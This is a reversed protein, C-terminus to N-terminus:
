KKTCPDVKWLRLRRVLDQRDSVVVRPSKLFYREIWEGAKRGADLLHARIDEYEDDCINLRQKVTEETWTDSYNQQKYPKINPLAHSQLDLFRELSRVLGNSLTENKGNMQGIETLFLTTQSFNFIKITHHDLLAMEEETNMPTFGIRSLFHHFNSHGSCGPSRVKICHGEPGKERCAERCLGITEHPTPMPYDQVPAGKRLKYNYWSQFWLVPHRVTVIFKTTPFNAHLNQLWRRTLLVMPNKFGRRIPAGENGMRENAHPRFLGKLEDVDNPDLVQVESGTDAGAMFVQNSRSFIKELLFTTGSKEFAVVGFDILRSDEDVVNGNSVSVNTFQSDEIVGDDDNSITVNTDAAQSSTTNEGSSSLSTMGEDNDQTATVNEYAKSGKSEVDVTSDNPLASSANAEKHNQDNTAPSGAGSTSGGGFHYKHVPRKKRWKDKKVQVPYEMGAGAEELGSITDSQRVQQGWVTLLVLVVGLTLVISRLRKRGRSNGHRWVDDISGTMRTESGYLPLM